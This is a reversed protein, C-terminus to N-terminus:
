HTTARTLHVLASSESSPLQLVFIARGRRNQIIELLMVTVARLVQFRVRLFVACKGVFFLDRQFQQVSLPARQRRQAFAAFQVLVGHAANLVIQIQFFLAQVRVSLNQNQLPGFECGRRRPPPSAPVDPLTFAGKIVFQPTVAIKTDEEKDNRTSPAQSQFRPIKRGRALPVGFWKWKRQRSPTLNRPELRM